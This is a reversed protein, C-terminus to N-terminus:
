RRGASILNVTTSNKKVFMNWAIYIGLGVGGVIAATKIFSLIPDEASVPQPPTQLGHVLERCAAESSGANKCRAYTQWYNALYNSYNEQNARVVALQIQKQEDFYVSIAYLAIGTLIGLAIIATAWAPITGLGAVVIPIFGLGSTGNASSLAVGPTIIPLRQPRPLQDVAFDAVTGAIILSRISTYLQAEIAFLSENYRNIVNAQDQSLLGTENLRSAYGLTLRAYVEAEALKQLLDTASDLTGLLSKAEVKSIHVTM